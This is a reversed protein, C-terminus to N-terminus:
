PSGGEALRLHERLEAAFAAHESTSHFVTKNRNRKTGADAEVACANRKTDM